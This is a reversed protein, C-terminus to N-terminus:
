FTYKTNKNQFSKYSSEHDGTTRGYDIQRELQKYVKRM